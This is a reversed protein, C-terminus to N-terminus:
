TKTESCVHHSFFLFFLFPPFHPNHLYYMELQNFTDIKGSKFSNSRGKAASIPSEDDEETDRRDFDFSDDVDFRRIVTAM